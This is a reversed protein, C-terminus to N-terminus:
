DPRGGSTGHEEDQRRRFGIAATEDLLENEKHRRKEKEQRVREDQALEYRKVEQFAEALAESAEAIRAQVQTISQAIQARRGIAARAFRAYGFAIEFNARTAHQEAKIEDELRAADAHLRDELTHLDALARQKEDLHWRHFRILGRLDTM